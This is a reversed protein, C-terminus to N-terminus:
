EKLRFYQHSGKYIRYGESNVTYPSVIKQEVYGAFALFVYTEYDIEADRLESISKWERTLKAVAREGIVGLKIIGSKERNAYITVEEQDGESAAGNLFTTPEPM